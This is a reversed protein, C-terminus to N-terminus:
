VNINGVVLLVYEYTNAILTVYWLERSKKANFECFM